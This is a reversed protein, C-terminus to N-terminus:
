GQEKKDLTPELASRAKDLAMFNGQASALLRDGCFVKGDCYVMSRGQKLVSAKATLLGESVSNLYNVNLSVTPALKNKPLVTFVAAGCAADLLSALVGGHVIGASNLLEPRIDLELESAGKEMAVVRYGLLRNFGAPIGLNTIGQKAESM